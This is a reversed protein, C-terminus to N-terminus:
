QFHFRKSIGHFAYKELAHFSDIERLDKKNPNIRSTFYDEGIQGTIENLFYTSKYHLNSVLYLKHPLFALLFVFIISFVLCMSELGLGTPLFTYHSILKFVWSLSLAAEQVASRRGPLYTDKHLSLNQLLFQSFIKDCNQTKLKRLKM